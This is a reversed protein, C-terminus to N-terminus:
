SPGQYNRIRPVSVSFAEDILNFTNMCKKQNYFHEDKFLM